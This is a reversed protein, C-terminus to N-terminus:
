ARFAVFRPAKEPITDVRALVPLLVLAGEGCLRRVAELRDRALPERLERLIPDVRVGALDDPPELAIQEGPEARPGDVRDGRGLQQARQAPDLATARQFGRVARHLVAALDEAVGDGGPAGFAVRGSVQAAGQGRDLFFVM